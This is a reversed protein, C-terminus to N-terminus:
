RVLVLQGGRNIDGVQVTYLYLGSTYGPAHWDVQHHGAPLMQSVLTERLRGQIDYIRVHVASARALTFAITTSSRFPNPYNPYMTLLTPQSLAGPEIATDVAMPILEVTHGVFNPVALVNDIVNFFIDAPGNHGQSVMEPATSFSADFRFVANGSFSSVYVRGLGDRTLGDLDSLTTEVVTTVTSDDLAVAQIPSHNRFSCVLLRNGPADYLLGNPSSLGASVFSTVQETAPNIKYIRNGSSDSVYLIGTSDATIDNLFQSGSVTITTTTAGTALDIVAVGANCAAYLTNERLYLGRCSNQDSNFVQRSGTSDMEVISGTAHNSILYRQGVEDYVISEPNSLLSQAGAPGSLLFVFALPGWRFRRAKCLVTSFAM